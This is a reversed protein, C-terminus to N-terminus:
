ASKFEESQLGVKPVRGPSLLRFIVDVSTVIGTQVDVECMWDADGLKRNRSKEVRWRRGLLALNTRAIRAADDVDRADRTLAWRKSHRQVNSGLM